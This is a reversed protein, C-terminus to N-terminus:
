RGVIEMYAEYKEPTLIDVLQVFEGDGALVVGVDTM